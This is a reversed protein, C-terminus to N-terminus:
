CNTTFLTPLLKKATQLLFPDNATQQLFTVLLKTSFCSESAGSVVV